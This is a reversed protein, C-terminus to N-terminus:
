MKSNYGNTKRIFLLICTINNAKNGIMDKKTDVLDVQIIDEIKM